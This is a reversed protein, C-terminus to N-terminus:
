CKEKLISLCFKKVFWYMKQITQDKKRWFDIYKKLFSKTKEKWFLVNEWSKSKKGKLILVNELNKTKEILVM